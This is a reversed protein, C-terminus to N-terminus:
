DVQTEDKKGKKVRKLVRGMITTPLKKLGSEVPQTPLEEIVATLINQMTLLQGVVQALSTKMGQVEREM